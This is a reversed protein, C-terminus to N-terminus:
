RNGHYFKQYLYARQSENQAQMCPSFVFDMKGRVFRLTCELSEESDSCYAGVLSGDDGLILLVGIEDGSRELTCSRKETRTSTLITGGLEKRKKAKKELYADAASAVAFDSSYSLREMSNAMGLAMDEEIGTWFDFSRQADSDVETRETMEYYSDINETFDWSHRLIHYKWEPAFIPVALHFFPSLRRYEVVDRAEDASLSSFGFKQSRIELEHNKAIKGYASEEWYSVFPGKFTTEVHPAKPLDEKKEGDPRRHWSAFWATRRPLPCITEQVLRDLQEEYFRGLGEFLEAMEELQKQYRVCNENEERFYSLYSNVTNWVKFRLIVTIATGGLVYVLIWMHENGLFRLELIGGLFACVVLLVLRLVWGITSLPYQEAFHYGRVYLLVFSPLYLLWGGKGMSGSESAGPILIFWLLFPVCTLLFVTITMENSNTCEKELEAARFYYGAVNEDNEKVQAFGKEFQTIDAQPAGTAASPSLRGQYLKVYERLENGAM